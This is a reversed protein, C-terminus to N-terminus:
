LFIRRYSLEGALDSAKAELGVFHLLRLAEERNREEEAAVGFRSLASWLREGRQAPRALLVNELVPVQLILRLDQFTRAVGSRAIRHPPLHTTERQRLLLSRYGAPHFWNARPTPYNQGSRQPWHHRRDRLDPTSYACGGLCPAM